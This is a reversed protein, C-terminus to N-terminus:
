KGGKREGQNAVGAVELDVFVDFFSDVSQTGVQQRYNGQDAASVVGDGTIDAPLVSLARTTLTCQTGQLENVPMDPFNTNVPTPTPNIWTAFHVIPPNYRYLSFPACRFWYWRQCYPTFPWYYYLPRQVFGGISVSNYSFWQQGALALLNMNNNAPIAGPMFAGPNNQPPILPMRVNGIPTYYYRLGYLCFDRPIYFPNWRYCYPHTITLGWTTGWRTWRTVPWWAPGYPCWVNGAVINSVQGRIEGGPFATSHLNIYCLGSALASLLQNSPNTITGSFTGSTQGALGPFQLPALVGAANNVDAPGHFHANNLGGLLDRFTVTYFVQNNHDICVSATGTGPTPVPTPREAAGSLTLNVCPRQWYYWWHDHWCWYPAGWAWRVYWRKALGAQWSHWPVCVRISICYLGYAPHNIDTVIQGEVNDGPALAGATDIEVGYAGRAVVDTYVDRVYFPYWPSCSYYRYVLYVPRPVPVPGPNPNEGILIESINPKALEAAAVERLEATNNGFDPGTQASLIGPCGILAAAAALHALLKKMVATTSAKQPGDSGQWTM